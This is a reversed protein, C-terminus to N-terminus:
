EKLSAASRSGATPWSWRTTTCTAWTCSVQTIDGRGVGISALGADLGPTLNAEADARRPPQGIGGDILMSARGFQVHVVTYALRVIGAPSSEPLAEVIEAPSVGLLEPLSVLTTGEGIISVAADGFRRCAVYEIAMKAM